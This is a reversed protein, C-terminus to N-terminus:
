CHTMGVHKLELLDMKLFYSQYMEVACCTRAVCHLTTNMIFAHLLRNKHSITINTCPRSFSLTELVLSIKKLLLRAVVFFAMEM